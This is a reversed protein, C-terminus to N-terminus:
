FKAVGVGDACRIVLFKQGDIEVTAVSAMGMSGNVNINRVPPNMKPSHEKAIAGAFAAVVVVFATIVLFFKKDM